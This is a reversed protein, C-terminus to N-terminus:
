VQSEKSTDIESIPIENPNPTGLAILNGRWQPTKWSDFTDKQSANKKLSNRPFLQVIGLLIDMNMIIGVDLPSM